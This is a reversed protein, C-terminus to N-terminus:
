FNGVEAIYDRLTYRVMDNWEKSNHEVGEEYVSYFDFDPFDDVSLGFIGIVKENIEDVFKEFMGESHFQSKLEMYEHEDEDYNMIYIIVSDAYFDVKKKTFTFITTDRQYGVVQAV